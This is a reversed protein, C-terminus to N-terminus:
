HTPTVVGINVGNVGGDDSNVITEVVNEVGSNNAPTIHETGKADLTIVNGNEGNDM